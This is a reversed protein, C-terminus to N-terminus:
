SDEDSHVEFAEGDEVYRVGDDNDSVYIEDSVAHYADNNQNNSIM